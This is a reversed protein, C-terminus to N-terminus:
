FPWIRPIFWVSLVFFILNLPIGVKLFDRYRYGGANYVMMNTQYGVPTAFSTSAAFMVAMVFPMPDADLARAMTIALPAILVAAGNNSIVETLLATALYVMALAMLPTGAGSHLLLQEVVLLALGSKEMALGLPIMGALLMIVRWNIAAYVEDLNLVRTMVMALVGSLAAVAIPMLGAVASAFVAIVIALAFRGQRAAAPRATREVLILDGDRRLYALESRKVLLLLADGVQVTLEGLKDRLSTGRRHMALVLANGHLEFRLRSLPDGAFRSDPPVLAEVVEIDGSELMELNPVFDPTMTLGYKERFAFLGQAAGQVLLVDGPQPTVDVPAFLKEGNRIVEVVRVGFQAELASLRLPMGAITSGLGVRLEAIYDVLGYQAMLEGTRREPLLMPAVLLLYVAGVAFLILGHPTPTFIGFAHMGAGAAISAVLLNTSTGILTCVGGFQSAYSLPILLKSPAIKHRQAAEIILPLFVAVAATNNVFASMPGVAFTSAMSLRAPTTGFRLLFRGIWSLAGSRMLGASLVFMCAVTITAQNSFGSLADPVKLVGFLVLAILAAFAIGEPPYHDQTFAVTVSVLVLLVIFSELTM